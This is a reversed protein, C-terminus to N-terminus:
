PMQLTKQNVWEISSPRIVLVDIPGGVTKPRSQFRITDITTRIIYVVFDIADQITFFNIPISVPPLLQWTNNPGALAVPQFLRTVVDSEGGYTIGQQNVQNQRQVQNNQVEVVWVEQSPPAASNYGAVHFLTDPIPNMGQFHTLLAQATQQPSQAVPLTAIFSDIFGAIPVGQIDAQGYTGIAVRDQTVFLKRNSDSMAVSLQIIQQNGQQQQNNLTLRSDAAMV